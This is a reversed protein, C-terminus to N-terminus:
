FLQFESECNGVPKLVYSRRDISTELDIVEDRSDGEEKRNAHVEKKLDGLQACCPPQPGGEDFFAVAGLLLSCESKAHMTLCRAHAEGRLLGEVIYHAGRNFRHSSLQASGVTHIRVSVIFGESKGAIFRRAHRTVRLQDNLFFRVDCLHNVGEGTAVQDLIE